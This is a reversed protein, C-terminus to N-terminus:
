QITKNTIKDTIKNKLLVLTVLGAGAYISILIEMPVRFRPHSDPGTLMLFYLMILIYFLHKLYFLKRWRILFFLLLLIFKIFLILALLIAIIFLSWQGNFYCKIGAIIGKSNITRLTDRGGIDYGLSKLLHGTSPLFNNINGKLHLYAYLVPTSFIIKFAESKAFKAREAQNKFESLKSDCIDQQEAFTINNQKALIACANYRYLTISSVTSFGLYGTSTYNRFM